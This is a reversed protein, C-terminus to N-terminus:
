MHLNLFCLFGGTPYICLFFDYIFQFGFDFLYVEFCCTLSPMTFPSHHNSLGDGRILFSPPWLVTPCFSWGASLVASVLVLLFGDGLFKCGTCTEKLFSPSIFINESSFAFSSWENCVPRWELFHQLFNELSFSNSVTSPSESSWSPLFFM